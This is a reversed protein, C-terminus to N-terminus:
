IIYNYYNNNYIKIISIYEISDKIKRNCIKKCMIYYKKQYNDYKLLKISSSYNSDIINLVDLTTKDSIFFKTICNINIYEDYKIKLPIGIIIFDNLKYKLVIKDSKQEYLIDDKNIHNLIIYMIVKVIM